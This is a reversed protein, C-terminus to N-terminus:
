RCTRGRAEFAALDERAMQAEYCAETRIKEDAVKECALRWGQSKEYLNREHDSWAEACWPDAAAAPPAASRPSGACACLLTGALTALWPSNV